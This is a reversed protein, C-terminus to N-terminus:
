VESDTDEGDEPPPLAHRAPRAAPRCQCKPEAAPKPRTAVFEGRDLKQDRNRDAAHFRDSTKVAWEEFSLLNNGDKDLARFMAARPILMEVRTVVANRDRDIRNFRREERTFEDAEPPPAGRLGKGDVTPLAEAATSSALAAGPPPAGRETAARGQWWFVGAATLLLAALAGVLIRNM